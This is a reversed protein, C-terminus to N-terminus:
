FRILGSMEENFKVSKKSLFFCLFMSVSVFHRDDKLSLGDSPSENPLSWDLPLSDASSLVRGTAM